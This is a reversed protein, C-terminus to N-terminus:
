SMFIGERFAALALRLYGACPKSFFEADEIYIVRGVIASRLFGHSKQIWICLYEFIRAKGFCLAAYIVYEVAILYFSKGRPFGFSSAAFSRIVVPRPTAFVLGINFHAGMTEKSGHCAIVSAHIYKSNNM